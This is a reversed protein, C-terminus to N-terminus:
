SHASHKEWLDALRPWSMVRWVTGTSYLSLECTRCYAVQLGDPVPDYLYTAEFTRDDPGAPLLLDHGDAHPPQEACAQCRRVIKGITSDFVRVSQLTPMSEGCTCVFVEYGTREEAQCHGCHTGEFNREHKVCTGM